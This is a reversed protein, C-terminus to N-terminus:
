DSIGINDNNCEGWDYDPKYEVWKVDCSGCAGSCTYKQTGETSTSVVPDEICNYACLGSANAETFSLSRESYSIESSSKTYQVNVLSIAITFCLIALILTYKRM